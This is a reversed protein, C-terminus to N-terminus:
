HLIKIHETEDEVTQNTIETNLIWNNTIGSLSLDGFNYKYGCSRSVFVENRTYDITIDDQTTGSSLHYITFDQAPNLPIAISDTTVNNYLTDLDEAWLYLNAVSKYEASNGNDYFRIVLNPTVPDVCIDDKQCSIAIALLFLTFIPIIFKKM